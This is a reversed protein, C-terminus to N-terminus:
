FVHGKVKAVIAQEQITTANVPYDIRIYVSQNPMILPSSERDDPLMEKVSNGRYLKTSKGQQTVQTPDVTGVIDRYNGDQTGITVLAADDVSPTSVGNLQYIVQLLISSIFVPRGTNNLYIPVINNAVTADIQANTGGLFNVQDDLVLLLQGTMLTGDNKAETGTVVDILKLPALTGLAALRGSQYFRSAKNIHMHGTNRNPEYKFVHEWFRWWVAEDTTPGTDDIIADNGEVGVDLVYQRFERDWPCGDASFTTWMPTKKSFLIDARPNAIVGTTENFETAALETGNLTFLGKSVPIAPWRGLLDLDNKINYYFVAGLPKIYDTTPTDNLDDNYDKIQLRNGETLLSAQTLHIGGDGRLIGSMVSGEGALKAQARALRTGTPPSSITVQPPYTYGYGPDTIEIRVVRGDQAEMVVSLICGAGAGGVVNLTPTGTFGYGPSIIDVSSIIGAADAAAAIVAGTGGGGSVNVTIPGTYGLGGNLISVLKISGGLRAIATAIVGGESPPLTPPEIVISPALIYNQGGDEVEIRDLPVGVEFLPSSKFGAGSDDIAASVPWSDMIVDAQFGNGFAGPDTIVLTPAEYYDLGPNNLTVGIIRGSAPEIDLTATAAVGGGYLGGTFAITSSANYGYGTSKIRVSQVRLPASTISAQANTDPTGNTIVAIPSQTSVEVAPPSTYGSGPTVVVFGTVRRTVPDVTCTATAPTTYGGGVLTVKAALPYGWGGSIGGASGDPLINISTVLDGTLVAQFIGETTKTYGFVGAPRVFAQAGVYGSGQSVITVGTVAGGVVEAQLICGEGPGTDTVQISPVAYYGSGGNVITVATVEGLTVTLSLVAGSGGNEVRVSEVNVDFAVSASTYGAGAVTVDVREISGFEDLVAVAEAPTTITGTGTIVVDPPTTYGVSREKMTIGVVAGGSVQAVAIPTVPANIMKWGQFSDPIKFIVDRRVSTDDVVFKFSLTGVQTPDSPSAVLTYTRVTGETGPTLALLGTVQNFFSGGLSLEELSMGSIVNIAGGVEVMVRVYIPAAPQLTMQADAVMYGFNAITSVSSQTTLAWVNYGPTTDILEIADFGVIVQQDYSPPITRAGGVPRMGMSVRYLTEISDPNSYATGLIYHQDTGMFVQIRLAPPFRTVKGPEDDSLYYPVGPVYDETAEIMSEKQATDRWKNYGAIMIDGVNGNVAVCVGLVLSSPNSNYSGTAFTVGALAKEYLGTNANFFVVDDVAVAQDGTKIPVNRIILQGFEGSQTLSTVLSELQTLRLELARTPQATPKEAVPDGRRVHRVKSLDDFESAM